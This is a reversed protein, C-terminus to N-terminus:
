LIHGPEGDLGLRKLTQPTPRGESDRGHIEYCEHVLRNWKQGTDGESTRRM